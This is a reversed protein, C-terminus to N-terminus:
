SCCSPPIPHSMMKPYERGSSQRAGDDDKVGAAVVVLGRVSAADCSGAFGSIVAEVAEDTVVADAVPAGDRAAVGAAVDTLLLADVPAALLDASPAGTSVGAASLALHAEPGLAALCREDASLFAAVQSLLARWFPTDFARGCETVPCAAGFSGPAEAAVAAGIVPLASRGAALGPEAADVADALDVAAGGGSAAVRAAVGALDAVEAFARRRSRDAVSM